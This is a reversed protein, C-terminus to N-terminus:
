SQHDIRDLLYEALWLDYLWMNQKQTDREVTIGEKGGTVKIGKWRKAKRLGKMAKKVSDPVENKASLKGDPSHLSFSPTDERINTLTHTDLTEIHISRERRTGELIAAGHPVAM